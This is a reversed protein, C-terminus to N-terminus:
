KKPKWNLSWMGARVIDRYEPKISHQFWQLHRPSIGSEACLFVEGFLGGSRNFCVQEVPKNWVELVARNKAYPPIWMLNKLSFKLSLGRSELFEKIQRSVQHRFDLNVRLIEGVYRIGRLKCWLQGRECLDTDKVELSLIRLIQTRPFQLPRQASTEPVAAVEALKNDKFLELARRLKNTMTQSRDGERILDLCDLALYVIEMRDTRNILRTHTGM